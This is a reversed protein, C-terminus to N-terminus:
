LKPPSAFPILPSCKEGYNRSVITFFQTINLRQFNLRKERAYEGILELYTDSLSLWVSHDSHTIINVLLRSRNKTTSGMAPASIAEERWPLRLGVSLVPVGPTVWSGRVQHWPNWQHKDGVSVLTLWWYIINIIGIYVFILWWHQYEMNIISDTEM